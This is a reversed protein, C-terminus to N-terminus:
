LMFEIGANLNILGDYYNEHSNTTQRDDAPATYPVLSFRPEVFMAFRKTIRFKAQAGASLGFYMAKVADKEDSKYMYGLEPGFVVSADLFKHKTKEGNYLFYRAFSLIDWVAEARLAYYNSPYVITKSEYWNHRSYAFSYRVALYDTYYKGIGLALHGGIAKDLGLHNYVLDSNQINPGGALSIFFGHLRPTLKQSDSATDQKINYTFGFNGRFAPFAGKWSTPYSISYGSTYLMALPEVFMNIHKFVRFNFHLGLHYAFAHGMKKEVQTYAQKTRTANAYGVGTVLNIDCFRSTRYGDVVASINFLYSLGIETGLIFANDLNDSWSGMDFNIRVAHDQHLWKGFSLGGSLATGYNPNFLQVTTARASVFTNRMFPMLAFKSEDVPRYRKAHVMRSVDRGRDKKVVQATDNQQGALLKLIESETLSDGAALTDAVMTGGPMAYAVGGFMSFVLLFILIRGKM